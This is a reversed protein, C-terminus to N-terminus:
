AEKQLYHFGLTAGLLLITFVTGVAFYYWPELQPSQIWGTFVFTQIGVAVVISGLTFGDYRSWAALAVMGLTMLVTLTAFGLRVTRSRPPTEEETAPAGEQADDQTDVKPQKEPAAAYGDLVLFIYTAAIVLVTVVRVSRAM